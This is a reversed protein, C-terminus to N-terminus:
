NLSISTGTIQVVNDATVTVQGSVLIELNGGSQIKVDGACKIEFSGNARDHTISDGNAYCVTHKEPSSEPEPRADSYLASLVFADELLGSPAMVVVQEGVEPTWWDIDGGARRTIWPLWNTTLGDCDVRVKARGYDAGSVTGIRILNSLRRELETIEPNM